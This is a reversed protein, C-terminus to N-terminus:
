GGHRAGACSQFTVSHSSALCIGGKAERWQGRREKGGHAAVAGERWSSAFGCSLSLRSVLSSHISNIHVSLILHPYPQKSAIRIM